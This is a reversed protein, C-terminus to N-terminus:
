TSSEMQRGKGGGREARKREEEGRKNTKNEKKMEMMAKLM